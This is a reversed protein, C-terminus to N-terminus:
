KITKIKRSDKEWVKTSLISHHLLVSKFPERHFCHRQSFLRAIYYICPRYSSLRKGEAYLCIESFSTRKKKERKKTGSMFSSRHTIHDPWRLAELPRSRHRRVSIVHRNARRRIIKAVRSFRCFCLVITYRRSL